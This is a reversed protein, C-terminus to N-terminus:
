PSEGMEEGGGGADLPLAFYFTAGENVKGEAWVRGGHKQIIRKVIALGIGTGEYEGLGHLRQFPGFLNDAYREDFGIGNDKVYYIKENGETRGGVEIIATERDRTYKIANGMLNMMVQYLLSHDAYATPLGHVTLQLNRGPAQSKLREFVERAMVALNIDSKKMPLRALRSLGLLDDVLQAMIRTNTCVVQLLRLAEADLQAAHEGMLMRSFGEIARIPTKLDHAVSYSFSELDENSAKLESTREKVRGELEEQRVILEEQQVTLEEAQVQLEENAVVLEEALVQQKALLREKENELRKRETVDEIALLILDEAGEEPALRRANLLMNRLGIEPFDHEVEFDQFFQNTSLISKLLKRLRPIKWQRKGIEFLLRGQTESPLVQFIRYFSDNAFIVRLNGDLVILPERVTAIIRHALEGLGLPKELKSGAKGQDHM